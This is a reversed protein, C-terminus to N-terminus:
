LRGIVVDDDIPWPLVEDAEALLRAWTEGDTRESLVLLAGPHTGVALARARELAEGVTHHAAVHLVRIPEELGALRGIRFRSTFREALDPEDTLLHISMAGSVYGDKNESSDGAETLRRLARAREVARLGQRLRLRRLIGMLLQQHLCASAASG